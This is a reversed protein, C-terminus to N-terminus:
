AAAIGPLTPPQPKAKRPKRGGNIARAKPLSRETTTLIDVFKEAQSVIEAATDHLKEGDLVQTLLTEIEACQAAELTAHTNGSSDTWASTKRLM